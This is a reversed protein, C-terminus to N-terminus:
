IANTLWFLEPEHICDLHHEPGQELSLESLDVLALARAGIFTEMTEIECEEGM